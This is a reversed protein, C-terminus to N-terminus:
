QQEELAHSLGEGKVLQFSLQTHSQWSPMKIVFYICIYMYVYIDKNREAGAKTGVNFKGTNKKDEFQM